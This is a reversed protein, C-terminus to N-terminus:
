RKVESRQQRSPIVATCWAAKVPVPRRPELPRVAPSEMLVDCIKKIYSFHIVYLFVMNFFLARDYECAMAYCVLLGSDRLAREHEDVGGAWWFVKERRQSSGFGGSSKNAAFRRQKDAEGEYIFFVRRAHRTGRKLRRVGEERWLHGSGSGGQRLRGRLLQGSGDGAGALPLLGMM